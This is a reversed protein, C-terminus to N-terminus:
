TALPIGFDSPTTPNLIKNNQITLDKLVYNTAGTPVMFIGAYGSGCDVILNNEVFSSELGIKSLWFGGWPCNIFTNNRIHFNSVNTSYDNLTIVLLNV